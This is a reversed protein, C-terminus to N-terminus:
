RVRFSVRTAKGLRTRSTGPTVELVYRHGAKVKARLARSRLSLKVKRPAKSAKVARFATFLAKGKPALVRLRVVRATAPVTVTLPVGTTGLAAARLTPVFAVRALGLTATGAGLGGVLPLALRPAAAAAAPADPAPALVVPANGARVDVVLNDLHAGTSSKVSVCADGPATGPAGAACAVPVVSSNRVDVSWSGLFDVTSTGIVEGTGPTGSAYVTITHPTKIDSTGDVVWRQQAKTFRQGVPTLTETAVAAPAVVTLTMTADATTPGDGTVTLTFPYDGPATNAPVSVQGVAQDAVTLTLASTTSWAYSNINGTSGSGDLNVTQDADGSAVTLNRGADAALPAPDTAPGTLTVPIAITGGGSSVVDVTIPPAPIPNDPSVGMTGSFGGGGNDTLAFKQTSTIKHIPQGNSDTPVWVTVGGTKKDSSSVDLSLTHAARDYSATGRLADIVDAVKHTRPSDSVNDIAVQDPLGPLRDPDDADGALVPIRAFFQGDANEMNTMNILRGPSQRRTPNADQVVLHQAPDTNNSEALVNVMANSGDADRSYTASDVQVGGRTAEKGMLSFLTQITCNDAKANGNQAALTDLVGAFKNMPTNPDDTSNPDAPDAPFAPCRNEAPANAAVNPGLIAIYNTDTPSNQIAHDQGPAGIYGPPLPAEGPAPDTWHLFPGVQGALAESFAGPTIGIDETAFIGDAGADTTVEDTGYPHVILYKENAKLGGTIRVRFRSFVMQDGNVPAGVSFAGELANEVSVKGGGDSGIGIFGATANMYFFEDPFNVPKTSDTINLPINPNYDGGPPLCMPDNADLCPELSMRQFDKYFDPYGTDPNVPGAKALGETPVPTKTGIVGTPAAVAVAAIALVLAAVLFSIKRHADILRRLKQARGTGAATLETSEQEVDTDRDRSHRAM